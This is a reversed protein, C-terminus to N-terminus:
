KLFMSISGYARILILKFRLSTKIPFKELIKFYDKAGNYNKLIYHTKIISYLLKSINISNQEGIDLKEYHKKIISELSVLTKKASSTNNKGIWYFGHCGNIRKFKETEKAFRLWCDFDEAAILSRDESLCDIKRLISSKLVVSSNTIINGNELLSKFVPKDLQKTIVKRQLLNTKNEYFRYLDHYVFDYGKQLTNISILLKDSTWWDDADLFAIWRGKAIEIGKNRSLAIIGRNNIQCYKIREDRFNKIIEITNDNSNNDIIILEWDLFSQSIVSNIARSIFHGCNYTPMIISVLNNISM